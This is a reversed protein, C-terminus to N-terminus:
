GGTPSPHPLSDPAKFQIM